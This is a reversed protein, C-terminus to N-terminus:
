VSLTPITFFLRRWLWLYVLEDKPVPWWQQGVSSLVDKWWKDLKSLGSSKSKFLWPHGKVRVKEVTTDWRMSPSPTATRKDGRLLAMSDLAKLSIRETPQHLATLFFRKCLSLLLLSMNQKKCFLFFVLSDALYQSFNVVSTVKRRRHLLRQRQEWPLRCYATLRERLVGDPPSFLFVDVKPNVILM